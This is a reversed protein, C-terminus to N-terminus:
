AAVHLPRSKTLKEGVDICAADIRDHDVLDIAQGTRQRVEGADDLSQVLSVGRKDRHGLREVGGGRHAPQREIHQKRESLELSLDGSLSDAVLDRHGLLLAHPHAANRRQTVIDRGVRRGAGQHDMRSVGLPNPRDELEVKLQARDRGELLVDRSLTPARALPHASPANRGAPRRVTSAHEEVEQLVPDIDSLDNVARGARRAQVLGDDVLGDKVANLLLQGFVGDGPGLSGPSGGVQFQFALQEVSVAM